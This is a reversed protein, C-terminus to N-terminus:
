IVFSNSDERSQLAYLDCAHYHLAVKLARVNQIERKVKKLDQCKELMWPLYDEGKGRKKMLFVINSNRPFIRKAYSRACLSIVM